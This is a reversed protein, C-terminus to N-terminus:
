NIKIFQDTPVVKIMKVNELGVADAIMKAKELASALSAHSSLIFWPSQEIREYTDCIVYPYGSVEEYHSPIEYTEVQAPSLGITSFARGSNNQVIQYDANTLYRYIYLSDSNQSPRYTTSDNVKFDYGIKINIDHYGGGGTYNAYTKLTGHGDVSTTTLKAITSNVILDYLEKEDKFYTKNAAHLNSFSISKEVPNTKAVVLGNEISDGEILLYKGSFDGDVARSVLHKIADKDRIVYGTSKPIWEKKNKRKTGTFKFLMSYSDISTNNGDIILNSKENNAELIEDPIGVEIKHKDHYLEFVARYDSDSNNTIFQNSNPNIYRYLIQYKTAGM